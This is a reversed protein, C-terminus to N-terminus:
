EAINNIQAFYRSRSKQIDALDTIFRVHKNEMELV